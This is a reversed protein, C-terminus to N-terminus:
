FDLDRLAKKMKAQEIQGTSETARLAPLDSEIGQIEQQVPPDGGDGVPLMREGPYLTPISRLPTTQIEDQEDASAIVTATFIASPLRERNTAWAVRSNVVYANVGGKGGVQIVEIWNGEKLDSVARKITAESCGLMKALTGRSAVLAAQENMHAVIVQLLGAARPARQTLVAWAELASREVQVWTNRRSNAPSSSGLRTVKTPMDLVMTGFRYIAHYCRQKNDSCPHDTDQRTM